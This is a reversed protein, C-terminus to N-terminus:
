PIKNMNQAPTLSSPITHRSGRYGVHLLADWVQILGTSPSTALGNGSPEQEQKPGLLRGPSCRLTRATASIPRHHCPQTMAADCSMRHICGRFGAHGSLQWVKRHEGTGAVGIHRIPKTRLFACAPRAASDLGFQGAKFHISVQRRTKEDPDQNRDALPFPTWCGSPAM